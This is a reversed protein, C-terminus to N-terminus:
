NHSMHMSDVSLLRLGDVQMLYQAPDGLFHQSQELDFLQEWPENYNNAEDDKSRSDPSVGNQNIRLKSEDIVEYKRIGHHLSTKLKFGDIDKVHTTSQKM